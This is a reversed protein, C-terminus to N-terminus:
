VGSLIETLLYTVLYCIVLLEYLKPGALVLSICLMSWQVSSFLVLCALRVLGWCSIYTIIIINLDISWVCLVLEICAGCGYGGNCGGM